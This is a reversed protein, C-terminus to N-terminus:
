NADIGTIKWKGEELQLLYALYGGYNVRAKTGKIELLKFDSALVKEPKEQSNTVFDFEFGMPPGDNQKEKLFAEDCKKFYTRWHDIYAKSAFGTTQIKKLYNETATFNVRYFKMNPDNWNTLEMENIKNDFYWKFFKYVVTEPKDQSSKVTNLREYVYAPIRSEEKRAKRIEVFKEYAKKAEEKQNTEFLSNGLHLYPGALEPSLHNIVKSVEICKTYEKFNLLFYTYDAIAKAEKSDPKIDSAENIGTYFDYAYGMTEAAKKYDKKKSFEMAVEHARLLLTLQFSELYGFPPSQVGLALEGAERINGNKLADEIEAELDANPDFIDNEIFVLKNDTFSFKAVAEAESQPMGSIVRIQGNQYRAMPNKKPNYIINVPLSDLLVYYEDKKGHLNLAFGNCSVPDGKLYVTIVLNEIGPPLEAAPFDKIFLRNHNLFSKEPIMKSLDQGQISTFLLSLFGTLLLKKMM